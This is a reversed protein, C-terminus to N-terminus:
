GVGKYYARLIEMALRGDKQRNFIKIWAWGKSDLCCAKLERYMNMRDTDYSPGTQLAQYKLRDHENEADPAPDWTSPMDSRVVYDLPIGLAGQLSRLYNELKTDWITWKVGIELKGPREVGKEPVDSKFREIANEM